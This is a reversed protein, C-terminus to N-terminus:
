THTQDDLAAEAVARTPRLLLRVHPAVVRDYTEKDDYIEGLMMMVKAVVTQTRWLPVQDHRADKTISEVVEKLM